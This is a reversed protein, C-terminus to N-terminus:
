AHVEEAIKAFAGQSLTITQLIDADGHMISVFGAEYMSPAFYVGETFMYHFFIKFAQLNAAKVHDEHQIHLRDSFYFGFMGGVSIGSFPVSYRSAVDMLGQVLHTTRTRLTDFVGPKEILALTALGAAMVLPNGSLTGAQYVQGEPALCDMIDAKGGIAGIPLGGGIVKGLTTLDPRVGFLGQVGGMAVRFGTMVEDFILVAKYADCLARLGELFGADPLIMNMNGAIPEIIVGAVDDKYKAFCAKVAELDNFPIVITHETHASPIGATSPLGLTLVGSGAKVLLSDNHGHYCGQFKIIKNKGTHGRAIRIATMTAETGSNVMRIKEISPMHELIKEALRIEMATPAGFSLGREAAEEVASLVEPHAHGAIATGWSGMYDIYQKGDVDFMYAGQGKDIFVPEGDVHRFARVPSNVGGPIIKKARTYLAHSLSM